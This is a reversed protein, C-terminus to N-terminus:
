ENNLFLGSKPIFGAAELDPKWVSEFLIPPPTFNEWGKHTQKAQLWCIQTVLKHQNALFQFPKRRSCTQGFNIAITTMRDPHRGTKTMPGWGSCLAIMLVPNPINLSPFLPCPFCPSYLTWLHRKKVSVLVIITNWDIRRHTSCKKRKQKNTKFKM